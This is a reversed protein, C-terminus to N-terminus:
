WMSLEDISDVSVARIVLPVPVNDIDSENNIESFFPSDKEPIDEVDRFLTVTFIEDPPSIPKFM